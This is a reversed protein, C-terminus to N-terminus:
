DWDKLTAHHLDLTSKQTSLTTHSSKLDELASGADEADSVRLIHFVSHKRSTWLVITENNRNRRGQKEFNHKLEDVTVQCTRRM